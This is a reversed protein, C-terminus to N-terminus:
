AEDCLDVVYRVAMAAVQIAEGRAATSRGRNKKRVDDWLEDLEEKIVAYGEHPSNFPEFKGVAHRLEDYVDRIVIDM